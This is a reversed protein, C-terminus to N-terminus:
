SIMGYLLLHVIENALEEPEIVGKLLKTETLREIIGILSDAVMEMDVDARFYGDEQEKRLNEKVQCALQNKIESSEKAMYFGIWTLDSQEKFFSFITTLKKKIESEITGKEMGTELRSQQVFAVLQDRFIAILEQFIAEKSQFYLYFSPQTVNARQVITSIKTEHYGNKSFEEAAIQLLLNRRIEGNTGKKRGRQGM